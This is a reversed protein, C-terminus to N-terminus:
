SRSRMAGARDADEGLLRFARALVRMESYTAGNDFTSTRHWVLDNDNAPASDATSARAASRALSVDYGKWWGGNANQWSRLNELARRGQPTRYWAEPQEVLAVGALMLVGIWRAYM